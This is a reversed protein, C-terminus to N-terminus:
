LEASFGLYGATNNNNTISYPRNTTLGSAVTANIAGINSTVVLSSFALATIAVPASGEISVGLNAFDISTPAVRMQTPLNILFTAQTTSYGYGLGYGAYSNTSATRWYYRQCAALEGQITNMARRFPQAVSGVDIQIGTVEYYDNTGATGTPAFDTYFALQTATSAVTGTVSFRQWTTTLTANLDAVTALGTWTSFLNQDTGTGSRVKL